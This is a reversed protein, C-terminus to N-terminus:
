RGTGVAVSEIVGQWMRHYGERLPGGVLDLIRAAADILSAPDGTECLHRHGDLLAGGHEGDAELLRRPLWKGGGVWARHHDFLLDAAANVVVGAVALREIPDGADGLDDVADTLGYRKTEVAAPELAPPGGRLDAEALARAQGAAGDLDVLVLGTAYVSQLVARRSAVDAAFLEALGARTHIFLEVLRGEVRLTERCTEGDDGVLVALDLDSSATARGMATSGGLIVAHADPFRDQVLRRALDIPDLDM